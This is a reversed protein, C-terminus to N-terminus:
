SWPHSRSTAKLGSPQSSTSLLLLASVICGGTKMCWCGLVASHSHAAGVRVGLGEGFIDVDDKTEKQEFEELAHLFALSKVLLLEFLSSDM